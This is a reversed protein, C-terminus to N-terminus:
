GNLRAGCSQTLGRPGIEVRPPVRDIWRPELRRSRHLETSLRVRRAPLRALVSRGGGRPRYRDTPVARFIKPYNAVGFRDAVVLPQLMLLNGITCGFLITAALLMARSDSQSMWLLAVAQVAALASTFPLLPVRSAVVGGILRFIVSTLALSGVLTAGTGKDIEEGLKFLHAIGGVQSGMAFIFALTILKFLLSSSASEYSLGQLAPAPASSDIMKGDPASGRAAPNPWLGPLALAVFCLYILSLWPSAGRMGQRDILGSALATVTIGGLSLGTSAISLAVSRRTHFWRTVLTTGPVLGSLGTGVAFVVYSLYLTVLQTSHGILWLGGAAVVGGVAVVLRIDRRQIVPAILRGSVASVIFFLSTAFSVSQTSLGQEETIAELFVSLGYFGLGANVMLLVFVSAVVYWGDFVAKPRALAIM